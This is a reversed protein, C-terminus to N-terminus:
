CIPAPAAAAPRDDLMLRASAMGACWRLPVISSTSCM